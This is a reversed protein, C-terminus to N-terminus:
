PFASEAGPTLGPVTVQCSLQSGGDGMLFGLGLSRIAVQSWVPCLVEVNEQCPWGTDSIRVAPFVEREGDQPVLAWARPRPKAVQHKESPSGPIISPTPGTPGCTTAGCGSDLASHRTAPSVGQPKQPGLLQRAEQIGKRFIRRFMGRRSSNGCTYRKSAALLGQNELPLQSVGVWTKRMLLWPGGPHSFGTSLIPAHPCPPLPAVKRSGSKPFSNANQPAAPPSPRHATSEPLIDAGVVGVNLLAGFRWPM